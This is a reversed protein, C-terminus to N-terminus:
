TGTLLRSQAAKFIWIFGGFFGATALILFGPGWSLLLQALLGLIGSPQPTIVLPVDSWQNTALWHDFQEILLPSAMGLSPLFVIGSATCAAGLILLAILRATRALMLRNERHRHDKGDAAFVFKGM